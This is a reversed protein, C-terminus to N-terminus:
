FTEIACVINPDSFAAHSLPCEESGGIERMGSGAARM